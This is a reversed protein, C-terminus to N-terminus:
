LQTEPQEFKEPAPLSTEEPESEAPMEPALGTESAYIKKMLDRWQTYQAEASGTLKHVEGDVEVVMPEAESSFSIGLESIEEEHLTSQANVDMGHKIAAAGGIVMVDRLTGTSARTSSNGTAEIAIAAIIAMVGLAKSTNAKRKVERLAEAEISRAKRWEEYPLQMDRYYNDYHGNLTDILLFDRERVRAVRQYAPDDDAPLRLLRYQGSEDKKIHGSFADPAMSAAFRMDAIRRIATRQDDSLKNRFQALDNAIARYVAQFGDTGASITEYNAATTKGWYNRSFWARGSADLAEVELALTEGDSAIITGQVLLEYGESQGPLVRVAGWYGTKEMVARLHIPIFRAEAERIKMSLGRAKDENEPLTGPDFVAIDVDLLQSERVEKEAKLLTQSQEVNTQGGMTACGSLLILVFSLLLKTRM